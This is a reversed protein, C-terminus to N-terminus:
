SCWYFDKYAPKTRYNKLDSVGLYFELGAWTFARMKPLEVQEADKGKYDIEILPNDVCWDFYECAQRWLEDPTEFIKKRGSRDRLEWFRNNLPAGM